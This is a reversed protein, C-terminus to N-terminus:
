LMDFMKMCSIGSYYLCDSISQKTIANLITLSWIDLWSVTVNM